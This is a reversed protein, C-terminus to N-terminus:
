IDFVSEVSSLVKIRNQETRNRDKKNAKKTGLAFGCRLKNLKINHNLTVILLAAM